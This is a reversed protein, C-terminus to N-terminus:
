IFRKLLDVTTEPLELMEIGELGSHLLVFPAMEKVFLKWLSDNKCFDRIEECLEMTGSFLNEEEYIYDGSSTYFPIDKCFLMTDGGHSVAAQISNGPGSSDLIEVISVMKDELGFEKMLIEKQQKALDTKIGSLYVRANEVKKDGRPLTFAGTDAEQPYIRAEFSGEGSGFFGFRKLSLSGYYGMKELFPLVTEKIFGTTHFFQSHTVGYFNLVSRFDLYLLVPLFLLFLEVCSSYKSSNIDYTGPLLKEAHYCISDSKLELKGAGATQIAAAIDQLLPLTDATEETFAGTNILVSSAGRAMSLSLAHRLDTWNLGTTDLEIM